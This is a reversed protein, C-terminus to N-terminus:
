EMGGTVREITGHEVHFEPIDKRHLFDPIGTATIVCQYPTRVMELLKRQRNEDLESLVDDLLLVPAKGTENQIYRLLAMKFALMTMRKQGQSAVTILNKDNMMFVLDDHHIGKTTVRRELDDQRSERHMSLLVDKLNETEETCSRYRVHVEIDDDSLERYLAPMHSDITQVFKRRESLIMVEEQAMEEDLTDLLSADVHDSKLLINREKLFSQYRNLALLYKPSVKTIEQNMIRRRDKPADTFIRLDDPAFLVVNLIGVFESSRKVPQHHVMLTKGKPHIIAELDREADGDMCTCRIDAFPANERILKKDNSIRHSRTLSLYVLSELLNTKGQANEGTILNMRPDFNVEATEYNRFNRLKLNQIIM